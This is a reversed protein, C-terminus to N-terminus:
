GAAKNMLEGKWLGGELLVHIQEKILHEVETLARPTMIRHRQALVLQWSVKQRFPIARLRLGDVMDYSGINGFVSYGLGAAVLGKTAHIGAVEMKINLSIGHQSALRDLTIRLSHPRGPLIMPLRELLALDVVDTDIEPAIGSGHVPALLFLPEDLLFMRRLSTERGADYFLGLDIKDELLWEEILDSFGDKLFLKIKPYRHLCERVLSPGLLQSTMPPMALRVPGTPEEALVLVDREIQKIEQMLAEARGMLASGQETLYVGRGHRKLLSVGLVHELRAVRRSLASQAIHLRKGAHSFSGETGVHYFAYLDQFDM